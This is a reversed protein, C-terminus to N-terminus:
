NGPAIRLLYLDNAVGFGPGATFVMRTGDPAWSLGSITRRASLVTRMDGGDSVVLDSGSACAIEKSNPSWASDWCSVDEHCRVELTDLVLICLKAPFTAFERLTFSISTGDPSWAPTADWGANALMQLDTGDPRVSYLSYGGSSERTKTDMKSVFVIRTGDPSWAPYRENHPFDTIKEMPGGVTDVLYLDGDGDSDCECVLWRSDPAWSPHECSGGSEAERTLRTLAKGDANMLYIDRPATDDTSGTRHETHQFAIKTGDPSWAPYECSGGIASLLTVDDSYRAVGWRQGRWWPSAPPGSCQILLTLACLVVSYLGAKWVLRSACAIKM